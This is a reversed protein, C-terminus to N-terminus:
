RFGLEGLIFLRKRSPMTSFLWPCKHFVTCGSTSSLLQVFLLNIFFSLLFLQYHSIWLRSPFAGVYNQSASLGHARTPSNGPNNEPEPFVQSRGLSESRGLVSVRLFCSTFALTSNYVAQRPTLPAGGFACLAWRCLSPCESWGPM